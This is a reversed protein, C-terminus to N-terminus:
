EARLAEMPDIATARVAPLYSALLAAAGLGIAVGGYTLPDLPSVEFLMSTMLRTLLLAMGGAIGLMVLYPTLQADEFMKVSYGPFPPLRQLSLPIMRAVDASMLPEPREYPLPKLLVGQIVSVIASNAGIGLGLTVLALGTFLPTRILRCVM